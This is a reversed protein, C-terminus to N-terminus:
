YALDHGFDGELEQLSRPPGLPEQERKTMEGLLFFQFENPERLGYTPLRGPKRDGPRVIQPTVIIVLETKGEQYSKSRFLAGLIPIDGLLPVKSVTQTLDDKLLGAMIFGEGNELELETEAKRTTLGPVQFGELLVATTFDLESVEPLVKLRIKGSPLIIPTFKLQVGFEKFEITTRGDGQPVPVPFEGGALFHAEKGSSTVLNPEALIKAMGSEKLADVFAMFRGSGNSFGGIGSLQNAFNFKTAFSELGVETEFLEVLGGLTTFLFDGDANFFGLNIGLRKLSRTSVEAFRVQLLVQQDGGLEIINTVRSEEKTKGPAFKETIEQAQLKVDLSSVRGSLVITGELDRVEISEDPFLQHLSQKLKTLDRGVRVAIVGIVKDSQDWVTIKTSGIQRANVYIQRPSIVVVDAVEENGVSIRKAPSPLEILQSHGAAVDISNLTPEQFAWSISPSFSLLLLGAMVWFLSLARGFPGAQVM